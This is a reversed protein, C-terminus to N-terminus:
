SADAFELSLDTVCSYRSAASASLVSRAYRESRLCKQPRPHPLELSARGHRLICRADHLYNPSYYRTVDVSQWRGHECQVPNADGVCDGNTVAVSCPTRRDQRRVIRCTAGSCFVSNNRISLPSFPNCPIRSAANNSSPKALAIRRESSTESSTLSISIVTCLM